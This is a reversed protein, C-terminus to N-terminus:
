RNSPRVRGVLREFDHASLLRSSRVLWAGTTKPDKGRFADLQSRLSEDILVPRDFFYRVNKVRLAWPFRVADYAANLRRMIAASAVTGEAVVGVSKLYFCLRDGSKLYARGQANHGLAWLGKNLLGRMIKEGSLENAPAAATMVHLRGGGRRYRKEVDTGMM